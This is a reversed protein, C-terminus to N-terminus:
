RDIAEQINVIGPEHGRIMLSAKLNSKYFEFLLFAMVVWFLYMLSGKTVRQPYKEGHYARWTPHYQLWLVSLAMFSLDVARFSKLFAM